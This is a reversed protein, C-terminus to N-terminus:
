ARSVFGARESKEMIALVMESLRRKGNQSVVEAGLNKSPEEESPNPSMSTVVQKDCIDSGGTMSTVVRSLKDGPLLRYLNVGHPGLKEQIVLEGLKVLRQLVRKVQRPSLRAKKALTPISPFAHGEDNSFDAIALAV